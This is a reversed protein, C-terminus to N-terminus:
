TSNHGKRAGQKARPSLERASKSNQSADIVASISPQPIPQWPVINNNGSPVAPNPDGNVIEGMDYGSDDVASPNQGRPTSSFFAVAFYKNNSETLLTGMPADVLSYDSLTGQGGTNPNWYVNLYNDSANAAAGLASYSRNQDSCADVFPIAWNASSSFCLGGAALPNLTGAQADILDFGGIPTGDITGATLNGSDVGIFLGPNPSDIFGDGDIPNASTGGSPDVVNRNGAGLVWWTASVAGGDGPKPAFWAPTGLATSCQRVPYPGESQCNAMAQGVAGVAAVAAVIALIKLTRQM